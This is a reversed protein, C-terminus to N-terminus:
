KTSPVIFIVENLNLMLENEINVQFYYKADQNCITANDTLKQIFKGYDKIEVHVCDGNKFGIEYKAM